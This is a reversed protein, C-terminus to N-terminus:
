RLPEKSIKAFRRPYRAPTETQKIIVIVRHIVDSVPVTYDYVGEIRGGLLKVANNAENIEDETGTSKMALFKGGPRVLPLCLECLINLRAVARSLAFDYKERFEKKTGAEEARAHVAVADSIGAVSCVENLFDVRKGLSDLMTLSMDPVAIKLPLGPFGAGSGVDIVKKGSFDVHGTLALSDLFHLKSVDAEGSIATLNMVKNREELLDFYIGFKTLIEEGVPLSLEEMGTKLIEYDM